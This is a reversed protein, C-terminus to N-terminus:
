QERALRIQSTLPLSWRHSIAKVRIRPKHQDTRALIMLLDLERQRGMEVMAAVRARLEPSIKNTM